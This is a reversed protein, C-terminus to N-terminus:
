LDRLYKGLSAALGSVFGGWAFDVFVVALPYKELIAYNTFDYVGYVVLGLFAGWLFAMWIPDEVGVRPLAFFVIGLALLIYVVFGSWIVPNIKGDSIRAIERLQDTYFGAMIQGLWIYDIIPIVILVALFVKWSFSEM